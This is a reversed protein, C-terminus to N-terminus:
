LGALNTTLKRYGKERAWLDMALAALEDVVPVALGDKTMDIAKLYHHCTDCADIRVQPAADTTYVALSEFRDEGCAPCAVRLYSWENMCLSCILSRGAGHGRDRLVSCIPESACVPCTAHSTPAAISHGSQALWEAYPQLFSLVLSPDATADPSHELGGNWFATLLESYTEHDSDSLIVARERLAPPAIGIVSRTFERFLPLAYELLLPWREISNGHATASTVKKLSEFVHQQYFALKAYFSLVEAAAPFRETLDHARQIRQAFSPRPPVEPVLPVDNL